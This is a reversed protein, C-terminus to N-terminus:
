VPAHEPAPDPAQGQFGAIELENEENGNGDDNNVVASSDIEVGLGSDDWEVEEDSDSDTDEDANDFQGSHESAESSATEESDLAAEHAEEVMEEAEVLLNHLDGYIQDIDMSVGSVGKEVKKEQSESEDDSQDFYDSSIDPSGQEAEKEKNDTEDDIHEVEAEEALEIHVDNDRAHPSIRNESILISKAELQMEFTLLLFRMEYVARRVVPGPRFIPDTADLPVYYVELYSNILDNEHCKIAAMMEIWNSICQLYVQQFNALAEVREKDEHLSYPVGTVMRKIITASLPNVMAYKDLLYKKCHLVILNGYDGRLSTLDEKLLAVGEKIYDENKPAIECALNIIINRPSKKGKNKELVTDLHQMYAHGPGNHADSEFDERSRPPYPMYHVHPMKASFDHITISIRFSIVDKIRRELTRRM